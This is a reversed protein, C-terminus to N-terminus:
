AREFRASIPAGNRRILGNITHIRMPHIEKVNDISQTLPRVMAVRGLDQELSSVNLSLPAIVETGDGITKEEKSPIPIGADEMQKRAMFFQRKKFASKYSIEVGFTSVLYAEKNRFHNNCDMHKIQHSPLDKRDTLECKTIYLNTHLREKYDADTLFFSATVLTDTALFSFFSSVTNKM